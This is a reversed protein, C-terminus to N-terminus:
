PMVEPMFAGTCDSGFAWGGRRTRRAFGVAAVAFGFRGLPDTDGRLGDEFVPEQNFGVILPEVAELGDPEPPEPEQPQQAGERRFAEEPRYEFLVLLRVPPGREVQGHTDLWPGPPLHAHVFQHRGM